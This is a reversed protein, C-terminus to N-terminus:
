QFFAQLNDRSIVVQARFKPTDPPFTAVRDNITLKLTERNGYNLKIQNQAAPIEQIQGQKLIKQEPDSDDVQYKIWSDGTSAELRVVLRGSALLQESGANAPRAEESSASAAPAASSSGASPSAAPQAAASESVETVTQKSASGANLQRILTFIAMGVFLVILVGVIMRGWSRPESVNPSVAPRSRRSMTSVAPKKVVPTSYTAPAPAAPAAKPTQAASAGPEHSPAASGTVQQQYRMVAEEEDMGVHKAYARIFSRTFIGGPLISFNDGEIAKLFRTGIRSAESIEALSVGREERLRRLEEGLTPM